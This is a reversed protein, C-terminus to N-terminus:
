CTLLSLWPLLVASVLLVYFIGLAPAITGLENIRAKTYRELSKIWLLFSQPKMVIRKLTGLGLKGHSQHGARALRETSLDIDEQSLCVRNPQEPIGPIVFYGLVGILIAIIACIIYMWHWRALGHVGDLRASAGAQILGATLTGLYLGIYFIGGRALEDGRYWASYQLLTFFGWFIDLAPILWHMPIYALLFMRPIQGTVAGVIYFTQLKVLENDGFKLDEKLGAVYANNLNAQDMYKVWYSLVSYPVILLDLKTILTRDRPSDSDAFWNLCCYEKMWTGLPKYEEPLKRIVDETWSIVMNKRGPCRPEDSLALVSRGLIYDLLFMHIILLQGIHNAPDIFAQFDETSLFSPILFLNVFEKWAEFSSTPLVSISDLLSKAYMKECERKCYPELALVSGKFGDITAMDRPQDRIIARINELHAAPTWSRFISRHYEPMMSASVLTAGRSMVLSETMGHPMLSSQASICILAAFLADSDALSRDSTDALQQNILQMATVRHQLAQAAYNVNGNQSLHSAGLGLAAHALFDYCHTMAACQSWIQDGRLPLSPYAVTLFQYHFRLDDLALSTLPARPAPSEPLAQYGLPPYQCRLGLRACRACGPQREDCKVRRRKCNFCGLRSKSHGRRSVPHRTLAGETSSSSESCPEVPEKPRM